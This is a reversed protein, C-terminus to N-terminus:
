RVSRQDGATIDLLCSVAVLGCVFLLFATAMLPFALVKAVTRIEAGAM